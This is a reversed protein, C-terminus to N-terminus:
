ATQKTTFFLKVVLWGKYQHAAQYGTLQLKSGLSSGAYTLQYAKLADRVLVALDDHDKVQADSISADNDAMSKSVVHITVPIAARSTEKSIWQENVIDPFEIFVIPEAHIISSYQDNFWQTDKLDKVQSAIRDKISKYFPYFM